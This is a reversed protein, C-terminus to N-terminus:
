QRPGAARKRSGRRSTGALGVLALGALLVSSPEPVANVSLHLDGTTTGAAVRTIQVGITLSFPNFTPALLSATSLNFPTATSNVLALVLNTNSNGGLAAGTVSNGAGPPPQTGGLTLLLSGGGTFGTIAPM